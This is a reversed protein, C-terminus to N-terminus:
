NSGVGYLRNFAWLSFCDNHHHTVPIREAGWRRWEEVNANRIEEEYRVQSHFKRVNKEEKQGDLSILQKFAGRSQAWITPTQTTTTTTTTFAKYITTWKSCKQQCYVIIFRVLDQVLGCELFSSRWTGLDRTLGRAEDHSQLTKLCAIILSNRNM